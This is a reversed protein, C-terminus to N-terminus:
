SKNNKLTESHYVSSCLSTYIWELDKEIQRLQHNLGSSEM